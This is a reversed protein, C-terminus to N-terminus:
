YVKNHRRFIPKWDKNDFWFIPLTNNPTNHQLSLLLQCNGYGLAHSEKKVLKKGYKLCMEMTNTKEEKNDFYRSSNSFCKYSDNLEMEAEVEDLLKRGYDDVLIRIKNIGKVTGLLMLYSFKPFHNNKRLTRICMNLTKDSEVQSGSGCLDDVFVVHELGDCSRILDDVTVFLSVPLNNEQRFHYLLHNGSESPNGVGLFRTSNLRTKFASEIVTEDIIGNNMARIEQIIPTRYKDRYLAKLLYRISAQNFYMYKSLLYLAQKKEDEGKFNSLWDIITPKLVKGDWLIRNLTDINNYIEKEKNNKIKQTSIDM